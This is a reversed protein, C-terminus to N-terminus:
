FSYPTRMEDPVPFGMTLLGLGLHVLLITALIAGLVILAKRFRSATRRVLLWSGVLSLLPALATMASGVYGVVPNVQLGRAKAFYSRAATMDRVQWAWPVSLLLVVVGIGRLWNLRPNLVTM